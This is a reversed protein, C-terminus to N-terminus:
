VILVGRTINRSYKPLGFTRGFEDVEDPLKYKKAFKTQANKFRELAKTNLVTDEFVCPSPIYRSYNGTGSESGNHVQWEKVRNGLIRIIDLALMSKGSGSTGNIILRKGDGGYLSEPKFKWLYLAGAVLKLDPHKADLLRSELVPVNEKKKKSKQEPDNEIKRKNM